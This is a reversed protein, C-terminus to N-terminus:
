YLPRGFSLAQNHLDTVHDLRKGERGADRPITGPGHRDGM